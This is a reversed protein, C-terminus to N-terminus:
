KRGAPTPVVQQITSYGCLNTYFTHLIAYKGKLEVTVTSWSCSNFVTSGTNGIFLSSPNYKSAISSELGALTTKAEELTKRASDLAKQDAKTLVEVCYEEKTGVCNGITASSNTQFGVITPDVDVTTISLGGGQRDFCVGNPSCWSSAQLLLLLVLTM